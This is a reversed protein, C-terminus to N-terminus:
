FYIKLVLQVQRPLYDSVIQGLQGNVQAGTQDFQANTNLRTSNFITSPILRKWGSNYTDSKGWSHFIRSYASPSTRLELAVSLV